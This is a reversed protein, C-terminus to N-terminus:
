YMPSVTAYSTTPCAPGTSTAQYLPAWPLLLPPPYISPPTSLPRTHCSCPLPHLKQIRSPQLCAYMSNCCILCANLPNLSCIWSAHTDRCPTPRELFPTHAGTSHPLNPVHHQRSHRIGCTRCVLHFQPPYSTPVLTVMVSISPCTELLSHISLSTYHEHCGPFIFRPSEVDDSLHAALSHHHTLTLTLTLARTHSLCHFPANSLSDPSAHTAIVRSVYTPICLALLPLPAASHTYTCHMAHSTAAPPLSPISAPQPSLHTSAHVFSFDPQIEGHAGLIGDAAALLLVVCCLAKSPRFDTRTAQLTSAVYM